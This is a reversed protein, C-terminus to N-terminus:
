RGRPPDPGAAADSEPASAGDAEVGDDATPPGGAQAPAGGGPRKKAELEATVRSVRHMYAVILAFAVVGLLIMPAVLIAILTM